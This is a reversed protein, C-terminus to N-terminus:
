KTEMMIQKLNSKTGSLVIKRESASIWTELTSIFDMGLIGHFGIFETTYVDVVWEDRPQFKEVQFSKVIVQEPNIIGNATQRKKTGKIFNSYGCSELFSKSIGTVSAGTDFLMFLNAYVKLDLVQRKIMSEIKVSILCTNGIKMNISPMHSDM